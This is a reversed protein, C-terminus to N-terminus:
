FRDTSDLNWGNCLEIGQSNLDIAKPGSEIDHQYHSNLDLKELLGSKRLPNGSKDRLTPSRKSVPQEVCIGDSIASGSRKRGSGQNSADTSRPKDEPHLDMLSLELATTNSMQPDGSDKMPRKEEKRGSSESSTLSSEMSCITGRVQKRGVDKLSLDGTETLESVSSSPCGTNVMSVLQSLEAKALEVGLPSSKYGSLTEQAKKLVSQLYKGQAEIRLQLHRQVEIQEHLKRQVEMQLQLAQAIQLNENIQNKTADSIDRSLHGDNTKIERHDEEKNDTCSESQQSKGLRYKQLHSKLHYLTLGPIGMVRMLSKPTAKDAGGLQDVAETFRQHLESTWKLRPKADTSLVLNMNQNQMNGTEIKHILHSDSLQFM